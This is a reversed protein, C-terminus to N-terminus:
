SVFLCLSRGLRCGELLGRLLGPPPLATFARWCRWVLVFPELWGRVERLWGVWSQPVHQAGDLVANEDSSRAEPHMSRWWLFCFAACVLAWHRQLALSSRAQCATWGLHQKVERYAQEIVVRRAYLRAVETADAPLAKVRYEGDDEASSRLNTILYETTDVVLKMPDDTMVVLRLAQKVGFPGGELEAVWVVGDHGDAYERTLPQWADAPALSTLEEVGGVEDVHHWWAYSAPLALVFPINRSLLSHVFEDNKGYFSDAVVARFVWTERVSEILELALQPKTRFAPDNTKRAFHSAPTYPKLRLPFYAELTAYLVHVSVIGSDVKGLSGLYQRGVHATHTGYKRDGTEDVVLVANADPRTSSLATMAALRADHLADPNWTSESLFWQLRQADQHHSGIKGPETNAIGTATKHRETGLLLGQLYTRLSERQTPRTFAPDLLKAYQELPEPVEIPAHSM